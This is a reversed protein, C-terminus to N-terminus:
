ASSWPSRTPLTEWRQEQRPDIPYEKDCGTCRNKGSLTRNDQLIHIEKKNICSPCAYHKPENKSEYVVARGITRTLEYQDLKKAWSDASALQAQLQNREEQLAFLHERLGFLTDQVDGLKAQAEIIKTKAESDVKADFAVTLLEKATKLGQYAGTISTLDM